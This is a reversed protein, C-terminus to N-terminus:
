PLHRWRKGSVIRSMQAHSIGYRESLRRQTGRPGTAVLRRIEAVIEETLKATISKEGDQMTGHARMDMQNDRHTAWRLNEPM